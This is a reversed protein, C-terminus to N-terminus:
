KEVLYTGLSENLSRYSSALSKKSQKTSLWAAETIGEKIQPTTEDNFTTEM